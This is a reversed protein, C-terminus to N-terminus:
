EEQWSHKVVIPPTHPRPIWGPAYVPAPLPPATSRHALDWAVFTEHNYQWDLGYALKHIRYYIAERSPANYGDTNHRMISNNTPRWAGYQWTFAGEFVGLGQGNYRSDTLYKAWQVKTPDSTIDVNKYWGYPNLSRFDNKDAQSITGSYFYEDGLKAFGHGNEHVLLQQLENDNRGKTFFTITLGQGHDGASPYYMWSTGHWTNTNTIVLIIAENMKSDPVVKLAYEMCTELDSSIQTTTSSFTCGLATETDNAFVENPSVADVSYINFTNRFSIFPEEVFFLDMMHRMTKEYTGDAILRDSFGDGMLIINIGNGETATQLAHVQGDASYDTSTYYKEVTVVCEDTLTNDLNTATVTITAQGIKVGTIEGSIPNVTVVNPDSTSWRIAGDSVEPVVTATLKRQDGVGIFVNKEVSLSEVPIYIVEVVCEDTLSGDKTTAVITTQGPGVATVEGTYSDVSAVTYDNSSWRCTRDTANAPLVTAKLTQKKGINLTLKEPTVTISKVGISVTIKCTASKNGSYTHVTIVAEGNSLASLEGSNPDISVVSPRSSTWTVVKNDANEPEIKASLPIKDGVELKLSVPAITVATVDVQPEKDCAALACTAAVLLLCLKKM